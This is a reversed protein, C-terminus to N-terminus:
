VREDYKKSTWNVTIMQDSGPRGLERQGEPKGVLDRYERQETHAVHGMWRMMRWIIVWIINASCYWDHFEEHLNSLTGTIEERELGFLKLLVKNKLM